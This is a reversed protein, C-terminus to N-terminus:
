KIEGGLTKIINKFSSNKIKPKFKKRLEKNKKKLLINSNKIKKLDKIQEEVNEVNERIGKYVGFAKMINTINPHIRNPYMKFARNFAMNSNEDHFFMILRGSKNTKSVAGQSNAAIIVRNIPVGHYRLNRFSNMIQSQTYGIERLEEYFLPNNKLVKYFDLNVNRNRYGKYGLENTKIKYISVESCNLKKAIKISSFGLKTLEKVKTRDISRKRGYAKLNLERRIKGVTRKNVGMVKAIERDNFGTKWHKLIEKRNIKKM